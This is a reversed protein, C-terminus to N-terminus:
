LRGLMARQRLLEDSIAAAPVDIHAELGAQAALAREILNEIAAARSEYGRLARRVAEHRQVDDETIEITGIAAVLRARPPDTSTAVPADGPRRSCRELRWVLAIMVVGVLVAQLKRRTSM